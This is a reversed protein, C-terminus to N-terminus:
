GMVHRRAGNAEAEQLLGKAQRKVSSDLAFGGGRRASAAPAEAIRRVFDELKSAYATESILDTKLLSLHKKLDLVEAKDQQVEKTLANARAQSAQLEAAANPMEAPGLGVHSVLTMGLGDRQRQYMECLDQFKRETKSLSSLLGVHQEDLNQMMSRQEQMRNQSRVCKNTDENEELRYEDIRGCMERCTTALRDQHAQVIQKTANKVKGIELELHQVDDLGKHRKETASHREEEWSAQIGHFHVLTDALQSLLASRTFGNVGRTSTLRQTVQSALVKTSMSGDDDSMGWHASMEAGCVHERVSRVSTQLELPSAHQMSSQHLNGASKTRHPKLTCSGGGGGLSSVSTSAFNSQLRGRASVPRRKQTAEVQPNSDAPVPPLHLDFVEDWFASSVRPIERSSWVPSFEGGRLPKMWALLRPSPLAHADSTALNESRVPGFRFFPPARGDEIWTLSLVVIGNVGTAPLKLKRQDSRTGLEPDAGARLQLCHDILATDRNCRLAVEGLFDDSSWVELLLVCERFIDGSISRPSTGPNTEVKSTKSVSGTADCGDPSVTHEIGQGSAMDQANEQLDVASDPEVAPVPFVKPIRSPSSSRPRSERRPEDRIKRRPENGFVSSAWCAHLIPRDSADFIFELVLGEFDQSYFRSLFRVVSLTRAELSARRKPPIPLCRDAAVDEPTQEAIDSEANYVKSFQRGFVDSREVAMVDCSYVSIARVNDIPQIFAQLSWVDNKRIGNPLCGQDLAQM